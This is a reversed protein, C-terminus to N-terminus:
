IGGKGRRSGFYDLDAFVVKDEVLGNEIRLTPPLRAVLTQDLRGSGFKVDFGDFVVASINLM